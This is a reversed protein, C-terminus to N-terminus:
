DCNRHSLLPASKFASSRKLLQCTLSVPRDRGRGSIRDHLARKIGIGFSATKEAARRRSGRRNQCGNRLALADGVKQPLNRAAPHARTRARCNTPPLRISNVRGSSKDRAESRISPVPLARGRVTFIAIEMVLERLIGRFAIKSTGAAVRLAIGSLWAGRHVNWLEVAGSAGERTPPTQAWTLRTTCDVDHQGLFNRQLGVLTNPPPPPAPRAFLNKTAL